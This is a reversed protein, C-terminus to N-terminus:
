GSAKRMQRGKSLTSLTVFVLQADVHGAYCRRLCQRVPKVYSAITIGISKQYEIATSSKQLPRNLGWGCRLTAEKRVSMAADEEDSLRFVDGFGKCSFYYFHLERENGEESKEEEGERDCARNGPGFRRYNVCERRSRLRGPNCIVRYAGQLLASGLDGDGSGSKAVPSASIGVVTATRCHSLVGPAGPDRNCAADTPLGDFISVLLDLYPYLVSRIASILITANPAFDLTVSIVDVHPQAIDRWPGRTGELPALGDRCAFHGM